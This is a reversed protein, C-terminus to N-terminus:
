VMGSLGSPLPCACAFAAYHAPLRAALRRISRRSAGKEDLTLGNM